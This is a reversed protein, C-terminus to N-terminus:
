LMCEHMDLMYLYPKQMKKAYNKRTEVEEVIVEGETRGDEIGIYVAECDNCFYYNQRATILGSCAPCVARNDRVFLKM